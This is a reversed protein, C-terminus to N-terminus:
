GDKNMAELGIIGKAKDFQANQAATWKLSRLVSDVNHGRKGLSAMILLCLLVEIRGLTEENM